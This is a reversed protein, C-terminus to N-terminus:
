ADAREKQILSRPPLLSAVIIAAHRIVLLGFAGVGSLAVAYQSLWWSDGFNDIPRITQLLVSFLFLLALGSWGLEIMREGASLNRFYTWLFRTRAFSNTDLLPWSRYYRREVTAGLGFVACVILAILAYGSADSGGSAPVVQMGDALAGAALFLLVPAIFIGAMVFHMRFKFKVLRVEDDATPAIRPADWLPVFVRRGQWTVFGKDLRDGSM